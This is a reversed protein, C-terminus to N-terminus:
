FNVRCASTRVSWRPSKTPRVPRPISSNRSKSTSTRFSALETEHSVIDGPSGMDKLFLDSLQEVNKAQVDHECPLSWGDAVAASTRQANIRFIEIFAPSDPSVYIFFKRVYAEVRRLQDIKDAEGGLPKIFVSGVGLEDIIVMHYKELKTSAGILVSGDAGLVDKALIMGPELHEICIKNM